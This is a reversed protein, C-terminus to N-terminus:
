VAVPLFLAPATKKHRAFGRQRFIIRPCPTALPHQIAKAYGQLSSPVAVAPMAPANELRERGGDHRVQDPM